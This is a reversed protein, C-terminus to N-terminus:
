ENIFLALYTGTTKNEGFKEINQAMKQKALQDAATKQKYQQALEKDSKPLKVAEAPPIHLNRLAAAMPVNKDRFAIPKGPQPPTLLVGQKMLFDKFALRMGPVTNPDNMRALSLNYIEILKDIISRKVDPTAKPTLEGLKAIFAIVPGLAKPDEPNAAKITKDLKDLVELPLEAELFLSMYFTSM